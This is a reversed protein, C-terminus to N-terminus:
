SLMNKVKNYFQENLNTKINDLELNYQEILKFLEEEKIQSEKLKVNKVIFTYLENYYKFFPRDDKRFSFLDYGCVMCDFSVDYRPDIFKIFHIGDTDEQYYLKGLEYNFEEEKNLKEEYKLCDKDSSFEKGDEAQYILKKIM